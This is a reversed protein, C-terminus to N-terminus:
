SNYSKMKKIASYYEMEYLYWIKMWEDTWPCTPQKGIDVITFLAATYM